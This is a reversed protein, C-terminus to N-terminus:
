FPYKLGIMRNNAVAYGEGGITVYQWADRPRFEGWQRPLLASIVGHAIATGVVLNRFAVPSSHAPVLPDAEHYKEPHAVHGESAQRYDIYLLGLYSGEAITDGRTWEDGARVSCSTIFLVAFVILKM